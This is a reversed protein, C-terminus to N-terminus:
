DLAARVALDDAASASSHAVLGTGAQMLSWPAQPVGARAGRVRQVDGKKNIVDPVRTRRRRAHGHSRSPAACLVWRELWGGSGLSRQQEGHAACVCRDHRRWLREVLGM